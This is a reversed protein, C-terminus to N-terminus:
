RILIQGASPTHEASVITGIEVPLEGQERLVEMCRAVDQRDVVLM